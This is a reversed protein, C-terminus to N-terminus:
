TSKFTSSGMDAPYLPSIRSSFKIAYSRKLTVYVFALLKCIRPDVAVFCLNELKEQTPSYSSELNKNNTGEKM